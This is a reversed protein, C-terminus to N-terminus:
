RGLNPMGGMMRQMNKGSGSMKKMLRRTEDFQKVLRNVEQISTGSGSAIRKRRSGNLIVPNSREEPTMARIIAEIGKFADDDMDLNKLAKGAGPIMSALDKLSGM